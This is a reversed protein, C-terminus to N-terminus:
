APMFREPKIEKGQKETGTRAKRVEDMMAYLRKSGANSSGNGLHSVVDAPVVFEGESLAAPQNNGIMAPLSDSMGDGPGQLYGGNAYGKRIMEEFRSKTIGPGVPSPYGAEYVGPDMGVPTKMGGPAMYSGTYTEYDFGTEPTFPAPPPPLEGIGSRTPTTGPTGTFEMGPGTDLYPATDMGLMAAANAPHVGRAIMSSFTETGGPGSITESASEAIGTAGAIPLGPSSSIGTVGGGEEYKKVQGGKLLRLGTDGSLNLQGQPGRFRNDEEPEAYGQEYMAPFASAIMPLASLGVKGAGVMMNGDGYNRLFEQPNDIVANFKETATFDPFGTKQNVFRNQEALPVDTTVSMDAGITTDIPKFNNVDKMLNPPTELPPLKNPNFTADVAKSTDMFAPVTPKTVPVVPPQTILNQPVPTKIPLRSSNFNGGYGTLNGGGISADINQVNGFNGVSTPINGIGGATAGGFGTMTPNMASSGLVGQQSLLAQNITGTNTGAAMATQATKDAAAAMGQGGMGSLYGSVGGMLPDQGRLGAIGAGTLAGMMPGGYVGAAITAATSAIDWFSM